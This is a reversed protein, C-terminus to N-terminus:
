YFDLKVYQWKNLSNGFEQIYKQELTAAQAVCDRALCFLTEPMRPSFFLFNLSLLLLFFRIKMIITIARKRERERSFYMCFYVLIEQYLVMKQVIFIYYFIAADQCDSKCNAFASPFVSRVFPPSRWCESFTGTLDQSIEISFDIQAHAIHMHM